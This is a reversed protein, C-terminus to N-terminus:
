PFTSDPTTAAGLDNATGEYSSLQSGSSCAGAVLALGLIFLGRALMAVTKGPRM